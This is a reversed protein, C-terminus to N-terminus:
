FTSVQLTGVEFTDWINKPSVCFSEWVRIGRHERQGRRYAEPVSRSRKKMIKRLDQNQLVPTEGTQPCALRKDDLLV